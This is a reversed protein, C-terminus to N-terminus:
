TRRCPTTGPRPERSPLLRQRTITVPMPRRAPSPSPSPMALSAFDEDGLGCIFFPGCLIDYVNGSDDRLARNHELGMLKGEDNCVIAVPDSFPYVAQISGGVFAQMSELSGDLEVQEPMKGPQIALVIM